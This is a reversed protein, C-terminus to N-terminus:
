PCINHNQLRNINTM